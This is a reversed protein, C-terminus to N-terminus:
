RSTTRYKRQFLFYAASLTLALAALLIAIAALSKLNLPRRPLNRKELEYAFLQNLFGDRPAGLVLLTHPSRPHFNFSHVWRLEVFRIGYGLRRYPLSPNPPPSNGKRPYYRMDCLILRGRDTDSHAFLEGNANASIKLVPLRPEEM